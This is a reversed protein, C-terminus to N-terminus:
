EFLFKLFCLQLVSSTKEYDKFTLSYEKRKLHIVNFLIPGKKGLVGLAGGDPKVFGVISRLEYLSTFCVFVSISSSSLGLEHALHLESFLILPRLILHAEIERNKSM